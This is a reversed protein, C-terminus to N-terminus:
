RDSENSLSWIVSIELIWANNMDHISLEEGRTSITSYVSLKKSLKVSVTQSVIIVKIYLENEWICKVVARSTTWTSETNEKFLM